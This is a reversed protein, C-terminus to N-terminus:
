ADEGPEGVFVVNDALEDIADGTAKADAAMGEVSLTPDVEIDVSGGGGGEGNTGLFATLVVNGDSNEDEAIITDLADLADGVAKADAAMGAQTLTTDLDVSGGGSGGSGAPGQPGQPGMINVASPNPLDGDNTWTLNGKDDVHPTFTVGPAGDPGM